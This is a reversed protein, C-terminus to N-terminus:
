FNFRFFGDSKNTRCDISRSDKVKHYQAGSTKCHFLFICWCFGWTLWYKFFFFVSIPVSESMSCYFSTLVYHFKSFCLFKRSISRKDKKWSLVFRGNSLSFFVRWLISWNCRNHVFMQSRYQLMFLCCISLSRCFFYICIKVWYFIWCSPPWKRGIQLSFHLTAHKIM